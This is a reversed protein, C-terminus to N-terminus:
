FTKYVDTLRQIIKAAPLAAFTVHSNILLLWPLETLISHAITQFASTRNVALTLAKRSEVSELGAGRGVWGEISIPPGKM